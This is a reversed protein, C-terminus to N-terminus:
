PLVDHLIEILFIDMTTTSAMFPHLRRLARHMGSFVNCSDQGNAAGHQGKYSYFLGHDSILKERLFRRTPAKSERACPNLVGRARRRIQHTGVLYLAVLSEAVTDWAERTGGGESPCWIPARFLCACRPFLRGVSDRLGLQSCRELTLGARCGRRFSGGVSM